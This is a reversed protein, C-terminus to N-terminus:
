PKIMIYKAILFGLQWCILRYVRKKALTLAEDHKGM